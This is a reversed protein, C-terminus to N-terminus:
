RKHTRHGPVFTFGMTARWYSLKQAGLSVGTTEGGLSHFYRLDWNLGFNPTLFGTVGGGVDFAGVSKNTTLLGLVDDSQVHMVGAGGVVYPRLTYQTWRRPMSIVVNGMFTTVGSDVVLKQHSAQFFGPGYSLEGEVGFIGGLLTAAGGFAVNPKGAAHELDVFTTGGAFTVGLFPKLQWEALAATPLFLVLVCALLGARM